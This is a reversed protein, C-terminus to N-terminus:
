NDIYFSEHGNQLIRIAKIPNEFQVNPILQEIYLRMRPNNIRYKLWHKGDIDGETLTANNITTIKTPIYNDIDFETNAAVTIVFSVPVPFSYIVTPGEESPMLEKHFPHTMELEVVCGPGISLTDRKHVSNVCSTSVFTEIIGDYEKQYRKPLRSYGIVWSYTQVDRWCRNILSNGGIDSHSPLSMLEAVEKYYDNNVIYEIGWESRLHKRIRSENPSTPCNGIYFIAGGPISFIYMIEGHDAVITKSLKASPISIHYDVVRSTQPDYMSVVSYDENNSQAHAPAIASLLAICFCLSKFLINTM